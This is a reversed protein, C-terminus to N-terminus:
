PTELGPLPASVPQEAAPREPPPPPAEPVPQAPLPNPQAAPPDPAAQAPVEPPREQLPEAPQASPANHQPQTYIGPLPQVQQSHPQRQQPPLQQRPPVPTVYGTGPQVAQPMIRQYQPAAHPQAELGPLTQPIEQVGGEIGESHNAPKEDTFLSADDETQQEPFQANDQVFRRIMADDQADPAPTTQVPLPAERRLPDMPMPFTAVPKPHSAYFSEMYKRWIAAMVAGGTVHTGGIARNHENGAWVATVTDPTFGVFWIDRAQDATGTKGAVPISEMRAQKGTGRQVVDQMVDLLQYVPQAPFVQTRQPQMTFVDVGNGDTVKRIFQEPMYQGGRAITAYANAMELPSVACSGLAVALHPEISSKIGADHAVRIVNEIGVQHAVRVSCVNRSLALADRVTIPGLFRGDFNKPAYTPAFPYQVEYSEDLLLDGSKLAGTLLGTLYVFPKFASGATHPNTARNWQANKYNGVGGVLALVSGDALSLSVLAGQNVGSPARKVGASLVKEAAVQAATDLNTYVRLGRSWMKDEGLQSRLLRLVHAFYYPFKDHPVGRSRFKLPENRAAAAEQETLFGYEQMNGIILQQREIADKRNVPAGLDSPAKVLGALFAAEANSLQSAHKNFYTLAAREIGYVGNGFYVENLYTELIRQKNNHVEIDLALLTENLKRILSRDQDLYLNRALQQTITSGGEVIRGAKLNAVMARGIGSPDVGIHKYFNRDEAAIMAAIMSRSVKSLPVPQRDRDAYVTRVYKDNRDFFAIGRGVEYVTPLGSAPIGLAAKFLVLYLIVAGALLLSALIVAGGGIGPGRRRFPPKRRSRHRVPAPLQQKTTYTPM